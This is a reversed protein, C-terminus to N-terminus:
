KIKFPQYHNPISLNDCEEVFVNTIDYGFKHYEANVKAAALILKRETDWDDNKLEAWVLVESDSYAFALQEPMFEQILQVFKAVINTVFYSHSMRKGQHIIEDTTGALFTNYLKKVDDPASNDNIMSQDERLKAIIGNFWDDHTLLRETQYAQSTM